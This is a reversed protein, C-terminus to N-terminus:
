ADQFPLTRPDGICRHVWGASRWGVSLSSRLTVSGASLNLVYEHGETALGEFDLIMIKSM